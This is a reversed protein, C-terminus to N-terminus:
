AQFRECMRVGMGCAQRIDVFIFHEATVQPVYTGSVCDFCGSYYDSAAIDSGFQSSVRCCLGRGSDFYANGM